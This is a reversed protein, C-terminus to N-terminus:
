KKGTNKRERVLYQVVMEALIVEGVKFARPKAHAGNIHHHGHQSKNSPKHLFELKGVLDDTGPGAGQDGKPRRQFVCGLPFTQQLGAGQDGKAGKQIM